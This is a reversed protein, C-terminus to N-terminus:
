VNVGINDILRTKGVYVAVLIRAAKTIRLLVELTEPDVVEIYQVKVEGARNIIEAIGRKLAEADVIGQEVQRKAWNLSQPVCVATRRQQPTLYVNRSSMALGDAERVTEGFILEVTAALDKVMRRIVATQQYDKLGFAMVSCRTLNILRLVITAVGRFHGPRHRGCLPKSLHEVEVFTQYDEPYMSVPDPAFILEIGEKRLLELDRAEDRPYRTYDEGPAFQIPNVFISAAKLDCRGALLRILSLHGEHLYGMTPVLGIRLRREVIERAREAMEQPTRIVEIVSSTDM